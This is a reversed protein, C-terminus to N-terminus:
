FMWCFGVSIDIRESLDGAPQSFIYSAGASIGVKGLKIIVGGDLAVGSYSGASNRAWSGSKSNAIEWDFQRLGYGGGIYLSVPKFPMFSIGVLGYGKFIHGKGTYAPYVKGDIAGKEDCTINTSMPLSLTSLGKIYWGFPGCQGFSLGALPGSDLSYGGNLMFYFRSPERQKPQKVPQKTQYEPRAYVPPDMIMMDDPAVEKYPDKTKPTEQVEAEPPNEVVVPEQTVTVPEEKGAEPEKKTVSDFGFRKLREDTPNLKYLEEAVAKALSERGNEIYDEMQFALRQCELVNNKLEEVKKTESNDSGLLEDHLLCLQFARDYNGKKFFSEADSLIENTHNSYYVDGKEQANLTASLFIFLLLFLLKAKM